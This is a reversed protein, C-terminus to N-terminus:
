PTPEALSAVTGLVGVWGPPIEWWARVGRSGPRQREGSEKRGRWKRDDLRGEPLPDKAPPMGWSLVPLTADSICRATKPASTHPRADGSVPSLWAPRFHLVSDVPAAPGIM